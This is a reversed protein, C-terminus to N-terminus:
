GVAARIDDLAQQEESSVTTGGMGLFGGEKAAEAARQSASLILAKYSPADAPSTKQVIAVGESIAGLIRARPPADRKLIDLENKTLGGGFATGILSVPSATKIADGVAGMAAALEQTQGAGGSPSATVVLYVAAIPGM